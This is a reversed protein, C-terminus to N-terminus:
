HHKNNLQKVYYLLDLCITLVWDTSKASGRFHRPIESQPTM